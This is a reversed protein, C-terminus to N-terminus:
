TEEGALALMLSEAVNSVFGDKLFHQLFVCLAFFRNM